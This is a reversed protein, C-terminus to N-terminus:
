SYTAGVTSPTTSPSGMIVKKIKGHKKLEPKEYAAEEKRCKLDDRAEKM